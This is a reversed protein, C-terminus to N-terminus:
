TTAWRLGTRYVVKVVVNGVAWAVTVLGAQDQPIAVINVALLAPPLSLLFDAVADKVVKQLTIASVGTGDTLTAGVVTSM